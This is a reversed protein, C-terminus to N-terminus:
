DVITETVYRFYIDWKLPTCIRIKATDRCYNGRKRRIKAMELKCKISGLEISCLLAQKM